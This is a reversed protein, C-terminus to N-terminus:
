NKKYVYINDVSITRSASGATVFKLSTLKGGGFSVSNAITTGNISITVKKSNYDFIAEISYTAGAEIAISSATLNSTTGDTSYSIMKSGNTRILVNTGVFDVLTWSGSASGPKVDVNVKYTGSTTASIPVFFNTTNASNDQLTACKGDMGNEVVVKNNTNNSADTSYYPKTGESSSISSTNEFDESYALEYDTSGTNNNSSSSSSSPKSSSSSSSNNENGSDSGSGSGSSSGNEVWSNDVYTTNSLNRKGIGANNKCDTKAQNATTIYSQSYNFSTDYSCSNSVTANKSTVKNISGTSSSDFVDNYSKCVGGTATDRFKACSLIYNAESFLFANARLSVCYSTIGEYLNNYYHMNAQRGLPTRSKTKYFYNHHMTINCQLNSDGGGILGTKQCSDYKNYSYTCNAVGKLDTAGDGYKKDGESSDDFPRYGANFQNNHIWFYKYSTPKSTDGELACADEPYNTFKLNRVEISNCRKFLVGWQYLEADDGVGEFTINSKGEIYAMGWTTGESGSNSPEKLGSLKTYKGEYSSSSKLTDTTIRGIVRVCVNGKKLAAVIGGGASNKTEETVYIVQVGSKLTGDNNYAGVGNSNGDHAYGSRDYSVVNVQHIVIDDDSSGVDIKLDYEGAKLGLIDVRAVGKSTERILESDVNTWSSSSSLKYYAKANSVKSDTWTVYASESLGAYDGLLTSSTSGSGSGSSSSSSNSSSNKSSSSKSSSSSSSKSSSSKSSSSKSSSNSSKSSSSKSSSSKSSSSSSSKSSSSKSSSSKTESENTSVDESQSTSSEISSPSQSNIESQSQSNQSQSQSESKLSTQPVDELIACGVSSISFCVMILAILMIKAIKKM